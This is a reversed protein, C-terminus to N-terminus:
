TRCQVSLWSSLVSHWLDRTRINVAQFFVVCGLHILELHPVARHQRLPHRSPYPGGMTRHQFSLCSDRTSGSSQSWVCGQWNLFRCLLPFLSNYQPTVSVVLTLATDTVCLLCFLQAPPSWGMLARQRPPPCQSYRPGAAARPVNQGM